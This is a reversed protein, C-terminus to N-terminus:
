GGVEKQTPAPKGSLIAVFDHARDECVCSALSCARAGGSFADSFAFQCDDLATGMLERVTITEAGPEQRERLLRLLTARDAHLQPWATGFNFCGKLISQENLEHRKEMEAAEPEVLPASPPRQTLHWARQFGKAEAERVFCIPCIIGNPSGIVANWVDNDAFWVVNPGSCRQCIDEPHPASPTQLAELIAKLAGIDDGFLCVEGAIEGDGDIAQISIHAGIKIALAALAALSPLEKTNPPPTM